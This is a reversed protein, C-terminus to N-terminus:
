RFLLAVVVVLLLLRRASCDVAGLRCRTINAACLECSAVDGAGPRWRAVHTADNL